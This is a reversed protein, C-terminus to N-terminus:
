RKQIKAAAVQIVVTVASYKREMTLVRRAGGASTDMDMRRAGGASTDMDMRRAGGASTDMDM